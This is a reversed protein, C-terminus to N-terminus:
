HFNIIILFLDQCEADHRNWNALGKHGEKPVYQPGYVISQNAFEFYLVSDFLLASAKVKELATSLVSISKLDPQISYQNLLFTKSLDLLQRRFLCESFTNIVECLDYEEVENHEPYSDVFHVLSVSLTM